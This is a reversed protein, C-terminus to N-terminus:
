SWWCGGWHPPNPFMGCYCILFIIIDYMSQIWFFFFDLISCRCYFPKRGLWFECTTPSGFSYIQIHFFIFKKLQRRHYIRAYAPELFTDKCICLCMRMFWSMLFMFLLHALLNNYIVHVSLKLAVISTYKLLVLFCTVHCSKLLYRIWKRAPCSRLLRHIM